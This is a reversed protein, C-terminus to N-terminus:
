RARVSISISGSNEGRWGTIFSFCSGGYSSSASAGPLASECGTPAERVSVEHTGREFHFFYGTM